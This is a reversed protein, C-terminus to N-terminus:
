SRKNFHLTANIYANMIYIYFRAYAIIIQMYSYISQRNQFNDKIALCIGGHFRM